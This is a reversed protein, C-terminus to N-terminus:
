IERYERGDYGYGKGDCFGASLLYYAYREMRSMDNDSYVLYGEGYKTIQFTYEDRLHKLLEQRTAMAHALSNITIIANMTRGKTENPYNAHDM